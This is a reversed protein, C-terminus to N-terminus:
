LLRGRCQSSDCKCLIERGPVSDVDYQYDWSLEEGSKVLRNTFFAILPFRMDYTNILVNQVFMNPSCSHNFYRGINGSIKGDLIYVKRDGLLHRYKRGRIGKLEELSEIFDMDALYRDCYQRDNTHKDTLIHGTYTCIYTGAPLDRISRLGWGKDVTKFLQLEVGIGNQVVRNRCRSDCKCRVNCEYIGSKICKSLRKFEYGDHVDTLGLKRLTNVGETTKQWCSCKLKDRCGDECECGELFQPDTNIPIGDLPLPQSQYDIIDPEENDIQNVCMVPIREKGQTIDISKILNPWVPNCEFKVDIRVKSDFCFRDISLHNNTQFLFRDVQEISILSRGCPAKYEIALEGDHSIKMHRVWGYVVPEILFYPNSIKLATIRPEACKYTCEHFKYVPMPIENMSRVLKGFNILHANKSSLIPRHVLVGRSVANMRRQSGSKKALPLSINDNTQQNTLNNKNNAIAVDPIENARIQKAYLRHMPQLRPSGRFVWEMEDQYKLLMMSCDIRIIKTEVWEHNSNELYNRLFHINEGSRLRIMPRDPYNRFYQKVFHKYEDTGATSECNQNLIRYVDSACYEIFDHDFFILYRYSNRICPTEAVKGIEFRGTKSVRSLVIDGINADMAVLAVKTKSMSTVTKSHTDVVQVIVDYEDINTILVAQHWVNDNMLAICSKCELETSSRNSIAYQLKELEKELFRYFEMMDNKICTQTRELYNAYQSQNILNFLRRLLLTHTHKEKQPNGSSTEIRMNKCQEIIRSLLDHKGERDLKDACIDRKFNNLMQITNVSMQKYLGTCIDTVFQKTVLSSLTSMEGDNTDEDGNMAKELNTLSM